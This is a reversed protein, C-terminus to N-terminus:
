TNAGFGFGIGFRTLLYGRYEAAVQAEERINEGVIKRAFVSKLPFVVQGDPSAWGLEVWYYTKTKSSDLLRSDKINTTQSDSGAELIFKAGSSAIAEYKNTRGTRKPLRKWKGVLIPNKGLLLRKLEPTFETATEPDVKAAQMYRAAVRQNITTMSNGKEEGLLIARFKIRLALM